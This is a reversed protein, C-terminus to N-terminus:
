KNGATKFELRSLIRLQHVTFGILMFGLVWAMASAPGFKLHMYAKYFIHLGAVTTNSAGGTMALIFAESQWSAIFIGIFQIILLPKLMPIVVFLIKDIFSAGDIDAAEYFDEAIGKLAALYILCGPGMGAWVMPLVCCFMATKPDLLWRYPDSTKKFLALYWHTGEQFLIPRAFDFFFMFLMAGVALCMAGTLYKQHLLLRKAFFFMILFFGGGLAIYGVAPISLVVANLVGYETPEYFSQWLFIVVLGSIVAPLYFITRFLIKGRPIEQLLVALIVPPLFTLGIVLICYRASNWVARWWEKDWLVAGFNDVWVWTSGGMIHYDQFALKSGLILPLYQWFAITLLAPFLLIYAWAYKRFGCGVPKEGVVATGSFIKAVRRFLFMFACVILVLFAVAAIRRKLLEEPSIIGIMKENTERVSEDLLSQLLASRQISNTPMEGSITLQAAKVLPKTMIEYVMQCNRGYPEPRGTELAINFCEEIGKPALRVIDDYGFMRLYRSNIFRGLGGEVLVRTQIRVADESALFRIYEWAADRIVPDKVGAFIGQMYSNLESARHGGPGKPVAVIGTVDPNIQTFTKEDIYTTYFAIQGIEWKRVISAAAQRMVYGYRKRGDKDYWVENCLRNYFDLAQVGAPSNYVARWENKAEDCELVEGGASWLYTVWYWSEQNFTPYCAGYIGKAPDTVKKCIDFFDDWTWDNNPYPINNAALLDKRYLVVRGMVGGLPMAWMHKQGDTGRRHMVPMIKPHICFTKETETLSTFYNDEPKDLPYLFGQQIYTDSVRFFVSMVDPAVGGAIAMLPGSDESFGPITIGSFRRLDIDVKDWNRKGYRGPNARYKARYREAFIQPFRSIFEKVVAVSAQTGPSPDASDPMSWLVLHIVTKDGKDEVFGGATATAVVALIVILIQIIRCLASQIIQM